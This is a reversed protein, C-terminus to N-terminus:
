YSGYKVFFLGSDTRVFCYVMKKIELMVCVIIRDHFINHYHCSDHDPIGTAGWRDGSGEAPIQTLDCVVLVDVLGTFALRFTPM